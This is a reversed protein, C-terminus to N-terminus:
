GGSPARVRDWATLIDSATPHDAADRGRHGWRIAGGGDILFAGPLRSRDGVSRGQRHGRLMAWFGRSVTHLNVMQSMGGRGLGFADYAAGAPDGLCPFPAGLMGGVAASSAGEAPSM